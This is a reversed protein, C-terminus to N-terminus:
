LKCLNDNLLTQCSANNIVSCIVCDDAFLKVTVCDDLDKTINNIYILFLLPALVSGQPVGSLVPLSASRAEKCEVFHTRNQLCTQIWSVPGDLVEMELEYNM